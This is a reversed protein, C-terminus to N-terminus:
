RGKRREKDPAHFLWNAPIPRRATGPGEVFLALGRDGKKQFMRIEIPHLGAKLGIAGSVDGMGHLGDNDVLLTDGVRLDSGDDSSLSFDYLGDQPVRVLGHLVLGYEEERAFSPTAISDLVTTRASALTDFGPLSDWSGEYYACSLGPPLDAISVPECLGLRHFTAAAVYSDDVGALLARAKVTTTQSVVIPGAYLPSSGTPPTNDLTYHVTGGPVPCALEVTASDVFSRRKAIIRSLTAHTVDYLPQAPRADDYATNALTAALLRIHPNAPLTLVRANAPLPLCISYLYTFQYAENEGQASHRHTGYWAVPGRNIYGPAIFAPDEVLAGTALRSDWQGVPTAYDQIWLTTDHGEVSFTGQAAGGVAAALLCLRNFTGPPLAVSQNNCRVVNLSGATKSGFAYIIDHDVLTDPLLEGV